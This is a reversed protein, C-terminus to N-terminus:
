AVQEPSAVPVADRIGYTRELYDGFGETGYAAIQRRAEDIKADMLMFFWFGQMFHWVFGMRGDLFGLRLFYRQVFYLVARLYLPAGAYLINRFFRKRRANANADVAMREDLPFIRHELNIFDIMQLTAYHNHKATWWGIDKLSEDVLDGGNLRHREGHALVIKEDMWRKEVSGVGTRWLRTLVTRYYGGWRIFKGKFIVKLKLDCGTVTEPLSGLDRRIQAILGEELYEDCDIKMTWDSTVKAARMGWDFQDAHGRFPNQLVEAGLGRAIEVTRDISFSDIVVIRECVPQLRTICREIHVEENFSLIIATVSPKAASDLRM